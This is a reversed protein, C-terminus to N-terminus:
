SYEECSRIYPLDRLYGKYDMGYGAVFHNPIEMGIYRPAVKVERRAKKDLLVAAEVTAPHLEKVANLITQLTRGTDVVDDVVIVHKDRVNEISNAGLVPRGSSVIESGYSSARLFSISIAGTDRAFLDLVPASRVLDALFTFAGDMVGIFHLEETANNHDRAIERAIQDVARAIVDSPIVYAPPRLQIM